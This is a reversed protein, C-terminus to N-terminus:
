RLGPADKKLDSPAGAQGAAPHIGNEALIQDVLASIVSWSTGRRCGVGLRIVKPVLLLTTEFPAQRRCSIRIGVPGSEGPVVGPPLETGVPFDSSLPVPGELIAASVAKAAKIDDIFLGHAPAWADVSFKGNADTATTVAAVAGLAKALRVALVNAGGIHGSLLTIVFRSLEDVSVVAPDTQKNQIHPAIARVAIGCAGVFILADTERFVPGVFEALPPAIPAVDGEALREPACIRCSDGSELLASCVREATKLGQRSFAFVALKM